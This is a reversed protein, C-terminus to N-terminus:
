QTATESSRAARLIRFASAVGMGLRKAIEVVPVGDAYMALVEASKARATPARGTYKGEAKAKAIGERQRELMLDREFAAVAGLMTLMLKGTATTTDVPQGGMSLVRLAVGKAELRSVISLLDATSRALRDPKSVVLVDGERAFDLAAALQPRDGSVSSVQESFVRECGAGELDRVQADLGADQDATSTRAYGILM